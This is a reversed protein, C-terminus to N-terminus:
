GGIDTETKSGQNPQDDITVVSFDGDSELRCERVKAVDDVGQKRLQSLLENETILEKEMNRRMLRGDRILVLSEPELLRSLVRSKFGLWDLFYDWLIITGVLALAETISRSEGTMGNQAADAVIVIVLIDAVSVSGSGRRFIRFVAFLALYMITGRIAMSLLSEQPVFLARWDISFLWEM